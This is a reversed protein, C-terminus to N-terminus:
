NYDQRFLYTKLGTKFLYVCNNIDVVHLIYIINYIFYMDTRHIIEVNLLVDYPTTKEHLV